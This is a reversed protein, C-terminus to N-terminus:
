RADFINTLESADNQLFIAVCTHKISYRVRYYNDENNQCYFSRFSRQTKGIAIEHYAIIFISKVKKITKRTDCIVAFAEDASYVCSKHETFRNRHWTSSALFRSQNM